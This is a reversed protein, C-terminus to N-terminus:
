AGTCGGRGTPPASENWTRRSRASACSRARWLFNRTPTIVGRYADVIYTITHFTYFSIGVPLIIDLNPLQVELGAVHVTSRVTDMFFNFYKFFGLLALDFVIPVVLCLRRERPTKWRLFGIGATYSVLTSVLMLLCFRPDWYGYFVYGTLTLWYYRASKTRLMWYVAYTVPLFAFLFIASNFLV